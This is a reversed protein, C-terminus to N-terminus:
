EDSSEVSSSIDQGAAHLIEAVIAPFVLANLEGNRWARYDIALRDILDSPISVIADDAM